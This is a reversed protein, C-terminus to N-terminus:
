ALALTPQGTASKILYAESNAIAKIVSTFASSQNLIMYGGALVALIVFGSGIMDIARM